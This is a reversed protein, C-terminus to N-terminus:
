ARRAGCVRESQMHWVVPLVARGNELHGVVIPGTDPKVLTPSGVVRGADVAVSWLSPNGGRISQFVLRSGDATWIPHRDDSPGTVAPVERLPEDLALVFIDRLSGADGAPFTMPSTAATPHCVPRERRTVAVRAVQHKPVLRREHPCWALSTRGTRGRVGCRGRDQSGGADLRVPEIYEPRNLGFCSRTALRDREGGIAKNLEFNPKAGDKEVFWTTPWEADTRRWRRGTDSYDGSAAWGGTDTLRRTTSAVLDRLALDGSAEQFSLYRGDLTPSGSGDVGEGTWVQRTMQSLTGRDPTRLARLRERATAITAAQDAFDRIVRDYIREAEANGMRQYAAAMHVLAQAAIVRNGGDALKRYQEIASNVDGKVTETEIAARLAVEASQQAASRGRLWSPRSSM